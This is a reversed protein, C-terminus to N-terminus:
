PLPSPPLENMAATEEPAPGPHGAEAPKRRLLPALVLAGLGILAVPALWSWDLDIFVLRWPNTFAVFMLGLATFLIGFVLSVVDLKHAKM